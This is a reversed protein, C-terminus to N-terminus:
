SSTLAACDFLRDRAGLLRRTSFLQNDDRSSGIYRTLRLQPPRLHLDALRYERCHKEKDNHAQASWRGPALSGSAYQSRDGIRRRSQNHARLDSDGIDIGVDAMLRDGVASSVVLDIVQYRAFVGNRGFDRTEFFGNAALELQLDCLRGSHIEGQFDAFDGLTDLDRGYSRQHVRSVRGDSM